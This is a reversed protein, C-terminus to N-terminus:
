HRGTTPPVHPRSQVLVRLEEMEIGTTAQVWRLMLSPSVALKGNRILTIIPETVQLRHALAADNRLEMRAILNDLLRRSDFNEPTAWVIEETAADGSFIRLVACLGNNPTDPM